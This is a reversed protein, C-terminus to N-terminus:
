KQIWRQKHKAFVALTLLMSVGHWHAAPDQVFRSHAQEVVAKPILDNLGPTEFLWESLRAANSEGLFQNQWNQRVRPRGMLRRAERKLRDVIRVPVGRPGLMAQFNYLNFPAWAQWPIAALAPSKRKIYEIQLQRGSLHREPVSRVFECMEDSYYPVELRGAATFVSLNVSTWRPAWHTSKFARMRANADPLDIAELEARLRDRFYSEFKGALGRVRWLEEALWIGSSKALRKYALDAITKIDADSALAFDDFLVDGWHGLYFTDGLVALRDMVAMQRPHTFEAYCHTLAPFREIENWLYGNPIIFEEHEFGCASGIQRGYKLEDIGGAFAYSYSKVGLEKGLVAAALSRSDLGGSVALVPDTTLQTTGAELLADLKDVCSERNQFDEGAEGGTWRFRQTRKELMGSGDLELDEGPRVTKLDKFYTESGLFMGTSLFVCIAEFDLEGAGSVPEEVYRVGQPEDRLYTMQLPIAPIRKRQPSSQSMLQSEDSKQTRAM